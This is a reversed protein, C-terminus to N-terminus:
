KGDFTHPYTSGLEQKPIKTNTVTIGEKSTFTLGTEIPQKIEPVKEYEIAHLNLLQILRIYPHTKEDVTIKITTM